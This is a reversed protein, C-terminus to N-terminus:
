IGATRAAFNFKNIACYNFESGIDHRGSDDGLDSSNVSCYDGSRMIDVNGRLTALIFTGSLFSRLTVSDQSLHFITLEYLTMDLNFEKLFDSKPESIRNWLPTSESSHALFQIDINHNDTLTSEYNSNVVSSCVRHTKDEVRILRFNSLEQKANNLNRYTLKLRDADSDSTESYYTNWLYSYNGTCFIGGLQEGNSNQISQYVYKFAQDKVCGEVNNPALSNCLSTTDVSPALNIASTLEDILGRGVSNVAKLTMGKQYISIINTAVIAITILLVGIFAVAIMLETITFGSKSEKTLNKNTQNKM